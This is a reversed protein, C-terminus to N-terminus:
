TQRGRFIPLLIELYNLRFISGTLLLIASYIGGGIILKSFISWQLSSIVMNSISVALFGHLLLRLITQTPIMKSMRVNLISASFWLFYIILSIKGVISIAAIWYPDRFLKVAFYEVIWIFFAYAIHARAYEKTKGFALILPTFIIINFFNALMSIQFYLGSAEYESSYLFVVIDTAHFTFFIVMPYILIASKRMAGRWYDLVEDTTANYHQLKSFLPMLVTAAASTIMPVLPIQQFGNSFEAFAKVGFYRSIFFQDASPIAIGAFHAYLLPLCFAFVTELKLDAKQPPVGRFPIRKFYMALILGLISALIWGFIAYRYDNGWIIVPSVICLLSILRTFTNYIALWITRRYTSFLGEMGMTPLILVPIASFYKLGVALEPNKLLIAILDSFIFLLVSFALGLLFLVNTLKKVIYRGEQLSYRPLFYAFANPVGVTFVTQLTMYVYIIQRYTGYSDKDLYRSLIVASVISLSFNSFNGLAVWLALTTNDKGSFIKHIM